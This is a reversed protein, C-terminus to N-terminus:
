SNDIADLAREMSEIQAELSEVLASGPPAEALKAVAIDRLAVLLGRKTRDLLLQDCPKTPGHGMCGSVNSIGGLGCPDGLKACGGLFNERYSIRGAKADRVLGQHDKIAIPELIQAKRKQGHPSIYRDDALGRFERALMQYMEKLYIGRTEDDIRHKLHYYNQGYYRSMARTAHKLQYQLSADSVLGSALMNVAGTRRLQHWALPWIEGVAFVEPDLGLTMRRAIALDEATIRLQGKDLLKPWWSLVVAYNLKRKKYPRRLSSAWPEYAWTQLLPNEIEEKELKLHPDHRTAELRLTTVSTMAEVAVRVSPSVIWCADDDDITKTTHGRLLHIDEGLPDREVEYCDSHLSIGEDIRMLSFNLIYAIGANTVLSLYKSFLKIGSRPNTGVWKDLLDEIGFKRATLLFHGHYVRGPEVRGVNQPNFPARDNQVAPTYPRTFSGALSGGANTAYADLCFRYCAEVQKSHQLYDDLCERLRLTQYTWIRPPVYATQTSNRDQIHSSFLRLGPEDLITFGIEDSQLWLYNLLSLAEYGRVAGIKAAALEIVKPYRYLESAAIGAETCAVFLPKLTQHRQALGTARRVARPGWLWWGAVLRFIDANPTDVRRGRTHGDGFNVSWAKGHWPGLDWLPDGFRSIVKGTRDIVVPFDKRPPWTDPVFNPSQPGILSHEIQLGPLSSVTKM